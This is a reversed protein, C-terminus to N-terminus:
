KKHRSPPLALPRVPKVSTKLLAPHIQLTKRPRKVSTTKRKRISINQHTQKPNQRASHRRKRHKRISTALNTNHKVRRKNPRLLHIRMRKNVRRRRTQRDTIKHTKQLM